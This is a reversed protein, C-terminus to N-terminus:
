NGVKTPVLLVRPPNGPVVRVAFLMDRGAFLLPPGQYLVRTTQRGDYITIFRRGPKLNIDWGTKGPFVLVPLGRRVMNNEVTSGQVIIPMKLENVFGIGEAAARCPLLVVTALGLVILVKHKAIM